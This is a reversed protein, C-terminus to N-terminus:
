SHKFKKEDLAARKYIDRRGDEDWSGNKLTSPNWYQFKATRAGNESCSKVMKKALDMDGLFNWGIEAIINVKNM